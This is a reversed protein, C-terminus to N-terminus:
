AAAVEDPEVSKPTFLAQMSIELEAAVTMLNKLTVTVDGNRIRGITDASLGTKKALRTASFDKVGMAGKILDNRYPQLSM